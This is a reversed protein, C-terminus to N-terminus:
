RNGVCASLALFGELFIFVAPPQGLLESAGFLLGSGLGIGLGLGVLAHLGTYRLILRYSGLCWLAGLRVGLALAALAVESPGFAYRLLAAAGVCAALLCALDLLIRLLRIAGSRPILPM